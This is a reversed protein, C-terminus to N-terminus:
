PIQIFPQDLQGYQEALRLGDPAALQVPERLQRCLFVAREHVRLVCKDTFAVAMKRMRQRDIREPLDAPFRRLFLRAYVAGDRLQFRESRAAPDAKREHPERQQLDHLSIRLSSDLRQMLKIMRKEARVSKMQVAIEPFGAQALKLVPRKRQFCVTEGYLCDVFHQQVTLVSLDLYERHNRRVPARTGKATQAHFVAQDYGCLQCGCATDRESQM